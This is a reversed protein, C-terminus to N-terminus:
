DTKRDCRTSTENSQKEVHILSSVILQFSEMISNRKGPPINDLVQGFYKDADAHITKCLNSGKRTTSLINYRRDRPNETRIVLELKFLGDVTRSITSTDLNLATALDKATCEGLEDIQLLVHCQAQSVQSCCRKSHESVIRELHRLHSRFARIQAGPVGM